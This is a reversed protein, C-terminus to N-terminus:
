SGPLSLRWIQAPAAAPESRLQGDDGVRDWGSNVLFYFYRGSVAGHTPEGLGSVRAVAVHWAVVRSYTKDLTALLVREPATGNQVALLTHGQMYFGDIGFLALEPPHCLWTVGHGALNVKAIGRTYDPVFLATGDPSVAPTQPSRFVGQKVVPEFPDERGPRIAYVGGGRGDSVFPKGDNALTMDGFAHPQGDSLEYRGLLTRSRLDIQLVASRGDDANAYPPSQPVATTTAWLIQKVADL